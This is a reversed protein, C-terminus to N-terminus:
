CTCARRAAVGPRKTSTASSSSRRTDRRAGRRAVAELHEPAHRAHRRDRRADQRRQYCLVFFRRKPKPLAALTTAIVSMATAYDQRAIMDDDGGRQAEEAMAVFTAAATAHLVGSLRESPLADPRERYTALLDAAARQAAWDIRKHRAEARIADLMATDLCRRCYDDFAGLEDKFERVIAGCRPTASPSWSTPARCAGTAGRGTSQGRPPAGRVRHRASRVGGRSGRRDRRAGRGATARRRGRRRRGPPGPHRERGADRPGPDRQDGQGGRPADDGDGDLIERM